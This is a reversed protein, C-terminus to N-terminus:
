QAEKIGRDLVGHFAAIQQNGTTDVAPAMFEKPAARFRTREGKRPGRNIVMWHPNKYGEVLHAHAGEPWDAGVVIVYHNRYTRLQQGITDRLARKGPKHAPDGKPCRRKAEKVVVAGTARLAKKLVKERLDVDFKALKADIATTPAVKINVTM